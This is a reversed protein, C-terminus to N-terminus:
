SRQLEGPLSRGGRGMVNREGPQVHELMLLWRHGVERRRPAAAGSLLTASAWARSLKERVGEVRIFVSRVAVIEHDGRKTTVGLVPGAGVV